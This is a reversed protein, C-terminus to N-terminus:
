PAGDAGGWFPWPRAVELQAAVRVLLDERGPAAVLQAGVPLGDTTRAAPISIAPQGTVNWAGLLWGLHRRIAAMEDATRDPSMWGLPFPPQTIIPTLLLDFGDVTWWPVLRRAWAILWERAAVLRVATTATAAEVLRANWVELEGPDIARGIDHEIGAVASAVEAAVFLGQEPAADADDLATPWAPEVEHGLGELTGALATIAAAVEPHTPDADGVGHLRLGIRCPGAARGVEDALPGPLPPAFYPDGPENGAMVDIGAAVDRVTRAIVGDNSFGGWPAGAPAASIRGRSPMLGVVGCLSAPERVSGGGDSGHAIAVMGAAVAAASGGSSGGSSRSHDWPNRTAGFALPETTGSACLEPVNTRGVIVFGADRIRRTLPTDAPARWGADRLVRTGLTLPEGAMASNETDKVVIPVGHFPRAREEPTAADCREAEALARDDRRHVVANVEPDLRAIREIATTVLERASCEGDRVRRAQETADVTGM